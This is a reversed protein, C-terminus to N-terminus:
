YKKRREVVFNSGKLSKSYKKLDALMHAMEGVHKFTDKRNVLVATSITLLGFTEQEGKRNNTTIQGRRRDKDAYRYPILADFVKIVNECVPSIQNTPIISIFDDGGIHGVFGEPCIDFVADRIIRATLKIVRDGFYYGYYDNYAKFEDIDSYCVAFDAELKLLSSIEKEILGPGPLRTSPNFSIDRVSREAVAKMRVEFLRGRWDGLLFDDCGNEYASIVISEEPEPHYLITPIVALFIHSKIRRTIELETAFLGKGAIIIMDLHFRQSLRLLEDMTRFYHISINDSGFSRSVSYLIDVREQRIACHFM